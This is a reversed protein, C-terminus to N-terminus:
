MLVLENLQSFNLITSSQLAEDGGLDGYCLWLCLEKLSEETRFEKLFEKQFDELLEATHVLSFILGLPVRQQQSNMTAKARM